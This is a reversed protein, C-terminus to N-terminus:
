GTEVKTTMLSYCRAEAHNDNTLERWEIIKDSDGLDINGEESESSSTEAPNRAGYKSAVIEGCYAGCASKSSRLRSQITVHYTRTHSQLRPKSWHTIKNVFQM